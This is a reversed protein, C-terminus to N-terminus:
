QCNHFVSRDWESSTFTEVRIVVMEGCRMLGLKSTSVDTIIALFGRRRRGLLLVMRRRASLTAVVTTAANTTTAAATTDCTWCRCPALAKEKKAPGLFLGPDISRRTDGIRAEKENAPRPPLDDDGVIVDTDDDDESSSPEFVASRPVDVSRFLAFPPPSLLVRVSPSRDSRIADFGARYKPASDDVFFFPPLLL